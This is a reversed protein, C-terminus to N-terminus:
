EVTQAAIMPAMPTTALDSKLTDEKLMLHNPGHCPSTKIELTKPFSFSASSARENRDDEDLGGYPFMVDDSLMSTSSKELNSRIGDTMDDEILGCVATELVEDFDNLYKM